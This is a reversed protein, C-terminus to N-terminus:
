HAPFEETDIDAQAAADYRLGAVTRQNILADLETVQAPSLKVREAALNEQLHAQSRTGPIPVLNPARALLWALALQALSCGVETALRSMRQLLQLNKTYNDPAFRPMNRRIDRPAFNSVDRLTGTLYGRALPSFAVFGV